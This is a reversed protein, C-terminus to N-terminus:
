QAPNNAWAYRVAVPKPVRDSWVVVRGKEIRADAWVFHRDAGAIAFGRVADGGRATLGGGVHDFDVTVRGNAITSRRYTPGSSAVGKEGYAVTRAVLALRAGVDAKNKPHIDDAEGLDIVVAQGTKPLALAASQSERIAAWNSALVPASDAAMFNPLQVWLFPFAGSHWRSRWDRIMNALLPRYAVADAYNDANSEGQYWLAGKIPYPLLPHVMKNYLLTPVKNIHQGDPTMSVAGVKFKWAGALPRKAGNVDVYLESGAGLVGGGGGNDQVRVAIVNRGARLAAAPVAYVRPRNWANEMRGVEHGNVWSVDSDDIQGLGLTVGGRAEADTLDFSTRYWAVGDMGEYGQQEWAGPVNITAWSAEDLSPDAWVARGDVLGADVTPLTGGLKARISEAARRQYEQEARMVSDLSVPALHLAEASMWPEIRSGGWSTNILGIPVKVHRRLDRAFFYGVATFGGVHQPDAKEWSGGALDAEPRDAYSNPVKFHRIQPDNAAAIAAAGDSSAAVAFEMNSQGSCVWVDGVLIDHVAITRAADAVTMEHPGGATMAPLTVKWSGAADARAAYRKGDFTVAVRDGPPAWGWVPVAVSRQMVMGDGVIRSLRLESPTANQPQQASATTSLAM